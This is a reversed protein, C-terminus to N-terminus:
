LEYRIREESIRWQKFVKRLATLGYYMRSKVTNESTELVDAIEAFKLGQYEKMVIVARQEEPLKQLARNLLERLSGNQMQNEPHDRCANDIVPLRQGARHNDATLHDLSITRKRGQRRIEDRCLNVAIQYLWTSFRDPDRLRSLNQYARVFTSQCVDRSVEKSGLYRLVFNYINKEWRRVITNFANIDGAKCRDILQADTM